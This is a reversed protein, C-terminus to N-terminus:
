LIIRSGILLFSLSKQGPSIMMRYAATVGFRNTIKYDFSSGIMESVGANTVIGTISNYSLPSGMLFVQPSITLRSNILLPPHMWFAVASSAWSSNYGSTKINITDGLQYTHKINYRQVYQTIATSDTLTINQGNPLFLGIAGLSVGYVGWRSSPKVWTFGLMTMLTGNLYANTNSYSHITNLKGKKFNMKTYALSVAGQDLTSWLIGTAGYSKDGMLSSQSLGVTVIQTMGGTATQGLTLDSAVMVPNAKAEEKKEEEKKEEEKKEETTEEKKEEKSETKADEKKEETKSETKAEEKAEAKAEAMAETKAEAKAEAKVEAKVEAKAPTASATAAPKPVPAPAPAPAPTPAPAPAPIVVPRPVSSTVASGAASSAASSAAGSASSSAAKTAAAAASAAAADSAAKAAAEAAAKAAAQAAAAAASAAATTAAQQVVPNNVIPCPTTATVQNIWALLEGASAQQATFTKVQNRYVITVGVGALPFTAVQVANNCPDIWTQVVSQAQSYSPFLLMGLIYYWTSYKM